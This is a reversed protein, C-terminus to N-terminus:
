INDSDVVEEIGLDESIWLGIIHLGDYKDKLMQVAEKLQGKQSDDEVKNGACDFHAVVAISQSEHASISVDIRDQISKYAKQCGDKTFHKVVGPETVVDVFEVNYKDSVYDYAAKQVRGDICNVLTAFKSYSVDM